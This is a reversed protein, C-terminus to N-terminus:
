EGRLKKVARSLIQIHPFNDCQLARLALFPVVRCRLVLLRGRAPKLELLETVAAALVLRVLFRLLSLHRTVPPPDCHVARM